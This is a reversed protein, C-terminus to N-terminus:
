QDDWELAQQLAITQMLHLPCVSAVRNRTTESTVSMFHPEGESEIGSAFGSYSPRTAPREQFGVTLQIM